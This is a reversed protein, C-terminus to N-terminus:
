TRVNGNKDIEFRGVYDAMGHDDDLNFYEYIAFSYVTELDRYTKPEDDNTRSVYRIIEDYSLNIAKQIDHYFDEFEPNYQLYDNLDKHDYIIDWVEDDPTEDNIYGKEVATELQWKRYGDDEVEIDSIIENARDMALSRIQDGIMIILKEDCFVIWDNIEPEVKKFFDIATPFENLLLDAFNIEEDEENMFQNSSFHIQYKEGNYSPQKPLMIYMPGSRNYHDFYNDGKTSATCWRTGQGYYCAAQENEPVIIRVVNDEFVVKSQGKDKIPEPAPEYNHMITYFQQFSLRMIDKADSRFDNRKKYKDYNALTQKMVHADELRKINQKAYERALWPTYIKNTTPDAQELNQIVWEVVKNYDPQGDPTQFKTKSLEYSRKDGGTMYSNALQRGINQTTKNRDYEILFEIARM